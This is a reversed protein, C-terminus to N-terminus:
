EDFRMPSKRQLYEMGLQLAQRESKFPGGVIPLCASNDLFLGVYYAEKSVRTIQLIWRGIRVRRNRIFFM